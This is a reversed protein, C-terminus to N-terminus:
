IAFEVPFENFMREYVILGYIYALMGYVSLGAYSIPLYPREVLPTLKFRDRLLFLTEYATHCTIDEQQFFVDDMIM